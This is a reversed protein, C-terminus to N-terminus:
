AGNGNGNRKVKALLALRPDVEQDHVWIGLVRVDATGDKHLVIKVPPVLRGHLRTKELPVLAGNNDGNHIIPKREVVVLPLSQETTHLM